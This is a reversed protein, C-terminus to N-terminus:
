FLEGPMVEIFDIDVGQLFSIPDTKESDDGDDGEPYNDDNRYSEYKPRIYITIPNTGNVENSEMKFEKKIHREGLKKGTKDYTAV